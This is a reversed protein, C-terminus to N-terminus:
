VREFKALFHRLVKPEWIIKLGRIREKRRSVRILGEAVVDMHRNTYVRRPIALRTLELLPYVTEGTKEDKKTFAVAGLELTRVGAEIYLEVSTVQAPFQSQPIHPLFTRADVYVAHGGTPHIIPIGADLLRKGLYGVQGVRYALYDEDVVEELGRAM